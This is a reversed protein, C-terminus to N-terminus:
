SSQPVLTYVWLAFLSFKVAVIMVIAVIGIANNYPRLALSVALFAGLSALTLVLLGLFTVTLTISKHLGEKSAIGFGEAIKVRFMSLLAVAISALLMSFVFLLWAVMLCIRIHEAVRDPDQVSSDLSSKIDSFIVTFIFGAGLASITGIAQFLSPFSSGTLGQVSPLLEDDKKYDISHNVANVIESYFKGWRADRAPQQIPINGDKASTLKEEERTIRDGVLKAIASDRVKDYFDAFQEEPINEM